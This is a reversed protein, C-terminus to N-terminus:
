ECMLAMYEVLSRWFGLITVEHCYSLFVESSFPIEEFFHSSVSVGRQDMIEFPM